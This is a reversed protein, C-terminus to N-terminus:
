WNEKIKKWEKEKREHAVLEPHTFRENEKNFKAKSDIISV